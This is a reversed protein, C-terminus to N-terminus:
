DWECQLHTGVMRWKHPLVADQRYRVRLQCDQRLSSSPYDIWHEEMGARDAEQIDDLGHIDPVTSTLVFVRKRGPDKLPVRGSFVVKRIRKPLLPDTEDVRVDHQWKGALIAGLDATFVRQLPDDPIIVYLYRRRAETSTGEFYLEVTLDLSRNPPLAHRSVAEIVDVAVGARKLEILGEATADGVFRREVVMRAIQDSAFDSSSLDIIDERTLPLQDSREYVPPLEGGDWEVINV